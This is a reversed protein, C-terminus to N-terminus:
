FCSVRDNDWESTCNHNGEVQGVEGITAVLTANTLYLVSAVWKLDSLATFGNWLTGERSSPDVEHLEGLVLIDSLCSCGSKILDTILSFM